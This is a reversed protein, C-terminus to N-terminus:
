GGGFYQGFKALRQEYVSVGSEQTTLIPAKRLRGIHRVFPPAMRTM